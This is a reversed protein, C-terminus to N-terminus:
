LKKPKIRIIDNEVIVESCSRYLKVKRKISKISPYDDKGTFLRADDILIICEVKSQLIIDLEREIPTDKEARATRIFEEGIFFESSYHGDLWFLIPKNLEAMLTSLIIGSDGQIITVNKDTSFRKAAKDALDESLEISILTDFNNKFHHITDGLFTGTEVMIKLAYIRRYTEIIERKEDYSPVVHRKRIIWRIKLIVRKLLNVTNM